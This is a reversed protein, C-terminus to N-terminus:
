SRYFRKELDSQTLEIITPRGHPCTYPNETKSLQVLLQEMESLSLCEKAKLSEKCAIMYYWNELLQQYTPAVAHQICHEIFERLLADPSLSGTIAPVGRLLYTRPGFHELVYGMDRLHLLQELLVQEEQLSFEMPIPILLLQSAGNESKAASKVKEFNIREHAAHQDIIMLVKDNTALIYTNFVQGLPRLDHLFSYSSQNTVPEVPFLCIAKIPRSEQMHKSEQMSNITEKTRLDPKETSLDLEEVLPKVSPLNEDETISDKFLGVNSSLESILYQGDPYKENLYAYPLSEKPVESDDLKFESRPSRTIPSLKQASELKHSPKDSDINSSSRASLPDPNKDNLKSALSWPTTTYKQRLEPFSFSMVPRNDLLTRYIGESIFKILEKEKNFRIDMKTPHVNVDYESPSMKLHLVSIPFLKNPILTDYGDKLARSLIASRIIRGNVIFTEGQKTSRVLDPPSIYGTLIWLDNSFSVPILKKAIDNGLISGVCELLNGNGSTKLILQQPHALSFAVDPRALALKGIIESILGFETNTSRLFKKRAPTNYFLDSISITTGAPCGTERLEIQKGGELKFYTGAEQQPPRTTIEMRSVSAISPLAEGRFGLTVLNNLDEIKVIKSTAHRLIALPLENSEIGSGNDRVQMFPVGNGEVVIDIRRAGADLANEVLEKIVSVPREVVEGAAIQNASHEDLVRISPTM